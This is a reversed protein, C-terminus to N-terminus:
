RDDKESLFTLKIFLKSSQKPFKLDHFTNFVPNLSASLKYKEKKSAVLLHLVKSNSFYWLACSCYHLNTVGLDSNLLFSCNLLDQYAVSELLTYYSNLLLIVLTWSSPFKCIEEFLIRLNYHWTM